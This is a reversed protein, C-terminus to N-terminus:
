DVEKQKTLKEQYSETLEKLKKSELLLKKEPSFYVPRLVSVKDSTKILLSMRSQNKEGSELVEIIRDQKKIALSVKLEEKKLIEDQTLHTNIWGEVVSYSCTVSKQQPIGKAEIKRVGGNKKILHDIHLEYFDNVKTYRTVSFKVLKEIFEYSLANLSLNDIVLPKVIKVNSENRLWSHNDIGDGTNFITYQYDGKGKNKVQILVSHNATGLNFIELEGPAIRRIKDLIDHCIDNVLIDKPIDCSSLSLSYSHKFETEAKSALAKKGSARLKEIEALKKLYLHLTDWPQNVHTRYTYTTKLAIELAGNLQALLTNLVKLRSEDDVTQILLSLIQSHSLLAQLEFSGGLNITDLQNLETRQFQDALLHFIDKQLIQIGEIQQSLDTELLDSNLEKEVRLRYREWVHGPQFPLRHARKIDGFMESRMRQITPIVDKNIVKFFLYKGTVANILDKIKTLKNEIKELQIARTSAKLYDQSSTELLYPRAEAVLTKIKELTSEFNRRTKQSFKNEYKLESKVAHLGKEIELLKDTFISNNMPVWNWLNM